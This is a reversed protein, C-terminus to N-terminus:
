ISITKTTPLLYAHNQDLSTYFSYTDFIRYPDTDGGVKAYGLRIKSFTLWDQKIVESLIFSGTLSYYLYGKGNLSSSWDNRITGDLYALSQYGLTTSAFM